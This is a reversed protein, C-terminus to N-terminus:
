PLDHAMSWISWLTSRMRRPQRLVTLV